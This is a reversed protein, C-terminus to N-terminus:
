VHTNWQWVFIPLCTGLMLFVFAFMFHCVLRDGSDGIGPRIYSCFRGYQTFLSVHPFLDIPFFYKGM